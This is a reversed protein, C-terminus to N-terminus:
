KVIEVKRIRFSSGTRKKNCKSCKYILTTKKTTKATRILEPFKQGGYGKKEDAHKRAGLSMRREKGKKYLSITQKTHKNCKPCFRRTEAPINM